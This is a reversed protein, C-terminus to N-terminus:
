LPSRPERLVGQTFVQMNHLALRQLGEADTSFFGFQRMLVPPAILPFVMLSVFSLRALSPDIDEKLLGADVLTSEIWQRSLSLVQEFVSLIIRYPESGDGEQLVRIILRPLGPNPAMVRYYTQMLEGVNNPAEATSIERLRVLVPELTERVMQEFLGAKSGFYYRILAADVEAERAIERTSVTPYSRHSFLSLAASILRQRADSNGKPRGPIQSQPASQVVFPVIGKPRGPTLSM